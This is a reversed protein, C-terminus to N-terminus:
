LANMSRTCSLYNRLGPWRVNTAEPERNALDPDPPTPPTADRRTSHLARRMGSGTARSCNKRLWISGPLYERRLELFAFRYEHAIAIM